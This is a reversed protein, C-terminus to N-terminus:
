LNSAMLPEGPEQGSLQSHAPTGVCYPPEAHPPLVRQMMGDRNLEIKALLLHNHEM